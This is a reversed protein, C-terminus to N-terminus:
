HRISVAKEMTIPCLNWREVVALLQMTLSMILSTALHTRLYTKAKLEFRKSNRAWLATLRSVQNITQSSKREILKGSRPM